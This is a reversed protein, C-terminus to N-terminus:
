MRSSPDAVDNNRYESPTQGCIERFVRSFTRYSDFGAKFAIDTVSMDTSLLMSAASEIRLGHLYELFNKGLNAKFSSSIYPTSLRFTQSLMDLTLKEHYHMHVYQLLSWFNIKESSDVMNKESQNVRRSARIFLLLAEMLKSRVMSFHGVEGPHIYEQYLSHLIQHMQEAQVPPFNVFSPLDRGVQFLLASLEADYISGLIINIDFMCCFKRIPLGPDSLIEHLHHPLLFSFTGPKMLHKQGNIAEVGCGDLVYSLEVFDHHHLKTSHIKNITMCFPFQGKQLKSNVFSDQFEPFTSMM